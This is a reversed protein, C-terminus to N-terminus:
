GSKGSARARGAFGEDLRLVKVDADALFVEDVMVVIRAHGAVCFFVVVTSVCYDDVVPGSGLGVLAGADEAVAGHLQACM